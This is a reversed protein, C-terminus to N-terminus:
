RALGTARSRAPLEGRLRACGVPVRLSKIRLGGIVEADLRRCEWSPNIREGRFPEFGRSDPDRADVHGAIQATSAPDAPRRPKRNRWWRLYNRVKPYGVIKLACTRTRPATGGQCYTAIEAAPDLGIAEFQDRLEAPSKVTGDAALTATSDQRLAGPIAGGHEARM